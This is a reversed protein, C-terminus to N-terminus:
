STISARSACSARCMSWRRAARTWSSSLSTTSGPIVERSADVQEPLTLTGEQFTTLDLYNFGEALAEAFEAGSQFRDDPHKDLGKMLANAVGSPFHPNVYRPDIPALYIQQNVLGIASDANFPPDGSLIEYFTVGLSYIDSREDPMESRIVEPSM